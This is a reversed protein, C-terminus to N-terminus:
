TNIIYTLTMDYWDSEMRYDLEWFSEIFAVPLDNDWTLYLTTVIASDINLLIRNLRYGVVYAM